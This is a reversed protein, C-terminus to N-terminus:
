FIFGVPAFLIWNALFVLFPNQAGLNSVHLTYYITGVIGILDSAATLGIPNNYLCM